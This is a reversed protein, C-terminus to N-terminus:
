RRALTREYLEIRDQPSLKSALGGILDLPILGPKKFRIGTQGHRTKRYGAPYTSLPVVYTLM